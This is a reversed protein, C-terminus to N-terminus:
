RRPTDSERWCAAWLHDREKRYKSTFAPFWDHPLTTVLDAFSGVEVDVGRSEFAFRLSTESFHSVHDVTFHIYDAGQLEAFEGAANPVVVFLLGPTALQRAASALIRAPRHFHELADVLVVIDWSGCQADDLFAEVDSCVFSAASEFQSAWRIALASSDVGVSRVGPRHSFRRTLYGGGCGLDLVQRYASTQKTSWLDSVILEIAQAAAERDVSESGFYDHYGRDRRGPEKKTFYAPDDYDVVPLLGTEPVSARRHGCQLCQLLDLSARGM